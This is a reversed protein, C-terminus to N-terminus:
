VRATYTRLDDTYTGGHVTILRAVERDYEANGANMKLRVRDIDDAPVGTYILAQIEKSWRGAPPNPYETKM